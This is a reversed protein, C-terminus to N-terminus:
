KVPSRLVVCARRALGGEATLCPQKESM